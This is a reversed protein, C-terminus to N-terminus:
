CSNSGDYRKIVEAINHCLSTVADALEIENNSKTIAEDIWGLLERMESSVVTKLDSESVTPQEPKDYYTFGYIDIM